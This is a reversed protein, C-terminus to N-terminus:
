MSIGVHSEGNSSDSECLVILITLQENGIIMVKSNNKIM